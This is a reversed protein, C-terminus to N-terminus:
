QGERVSQYPSAYSTVRLDSRILGDVRRINGLTLAVCTRGSRPKCSTEAGGGAGHQLVDLGNNFLM